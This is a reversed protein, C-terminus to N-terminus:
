YSKVIVKTGITAFNYRLWRADNVTMRVCGHSVNGRVVQYSGHLGQNGNFFMCYPMPAGGRPLPYRTSKCGRSGLSQIRFVGSRTRCSRKIDRCWKGGATAVGSRILKGSPSYASWTHARPNVIIYKESFAPKMFGALFIFIVVFYSIRIPM